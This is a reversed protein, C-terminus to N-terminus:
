LARRGQGGDKGAEPRRVSSLWTVGTRGLGSRGTAVSCAAQSYLRVPYVYDVGSAGAGSGVRVDM